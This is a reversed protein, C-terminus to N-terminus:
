SVANTHTVIIERRRPIVPLGGGMIFIKNKSLRAKLSNEHAIAKALQLKTRKDPVLDVAAYLIILLDDLDCVDDDVVLDRLTKIGHFRVVPSDSAPIPWAEFMDGNDDPDRYLDWKVPPDNRQDADSNVANYDSEGIGFEMSAWTNSYKVEAGIADELSIDDPFAYYREGASMAVDRYVRMFPWKYKAHLQKQTSRLAYKHTEVVNKGLAPSEALRLERRLDQVLNSLTVNRAM